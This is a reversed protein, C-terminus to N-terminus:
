SKRLLPGFSKEVSWQLKNLRNSVTSVKLGFHKALDAMCGTIGCVTIIRNNRKNRCQDKITEWRCNKPEYNGNNNIRGITMGEPKTGMDSYFNEFNLWRYCVSIGRGGYDCFQKSLPNTIRQIMSAWVSYTKTRKCKRAQGHTITWQGKFCGCSQGHGNTIDQNRRILYNGCTCVCFSRMAKRGHKGIYPTAECLVKLRGFVKGVLCKKAPM